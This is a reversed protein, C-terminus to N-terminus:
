QGIFNPKRNELRASMGERRDQTAFAGDYATAEITLASELDVNSGTNVAVKMQRMAVPAKEALKRAWEKAVALLEEQPVVKNVINLEYARKATIPEGFYLLEKAVGLGVLKQIRQTGGGGPIVGVNIETFSFQANEAAIRLDACLALEFGGGRAEGNVAAIVPKRNNEIRSFSIRTIQTLNMMGVTDLDVMERLDAGAVFAEKGAGTIIIARVDDNAELENMLNTLELYVETNLQNGPGNDITVTAVHNEIETILYQYSM